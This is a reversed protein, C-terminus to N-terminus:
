RSSLSDSRSISVLVFQQRTGFKLTVEEGVHLRTEGVACVFQLSHRAEDVVEDRQPNFSTRSIDLWCEVCGPAESAEAVLVKVLTGWERRPETVTAAGSVYHCEKGLQTLVTPDALTKVKGFRTPDAFLTAAARPDRDRLRRLLGPELRRLETVDVEFVRTQVFIEPRPKEASLLTGCGLILCAALVRM